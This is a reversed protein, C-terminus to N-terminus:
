RVLLAIMAVYAVAFGFLAFAVSVRLSEPEKM